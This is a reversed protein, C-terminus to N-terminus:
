LDGDILEQREVQEIATDLVDDLTFMRYGIRLENTFDSSTAAKGRYYYNVLDIKVYDYHENEVPILWEHYSDIEGIGGFAVQLGVVLNASEFVGTVLGHTKGEETVIPEGYKRLLGEYLAEYRSEATLDLVDTFYYQMEVLNDQEGFLFCVATDDFGSVTGRDTWVKFEGSKEDTSRSGTLPFTEKAEVEEFSDMFKIDNRLIFEENVPEETHVPEETVNPTPAPSPENSECGCLAFMMILALLLAVIKKM